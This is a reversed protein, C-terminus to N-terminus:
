KSHKCSRAAWKRDLGKLIFALGAAAMIMSIVAVLLGPILGFIAEEISTRGNTLPVLALSIVAAMLGLLFGLEGLVSVM